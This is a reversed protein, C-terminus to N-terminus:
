SNEVLVFVLCVVEEKVFVAACVKPILTNPLLPTNLVMDFM